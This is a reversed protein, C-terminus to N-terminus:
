CPMEPSIDIEKPDTTKISQFGSQRKPIAESKGFRNCSRTKQKLIEIKFHFM